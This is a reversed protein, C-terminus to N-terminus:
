CGEEWPGEKTVPTFAGGFYLLLSKGNGSDGGGFWLRGSRDEYITQIAKVAFGEKEDFHALFGDKYRYVGYGESPFWINGSKDEYITWVENNGLEKKATFHTFVTGNYKSVGGDMSSFWITGKKDELICTLDNSCLGEKKSFQETKEASIKFAGKDSTAIWLNGNKDETIARIWSKEADPLPYDEFRTGNFRCLGSFTGAWITGKSDQFVSWTSPHSLGDEVRFVRIRPNNESPSYRTIGDSTSFWLNGNKDEMIGTVQSGSLGEKVTLYSLAKGDYKALGDTNTGFWLNGKSDQFARRIYESVARSYYCPLQPGYLLTDDWNNVPITSTYQEKLELSQASFLCLALSCGIILIAKM